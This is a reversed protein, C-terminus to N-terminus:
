VFHFEDMKLLERQEVEDAEGCVGWHEAGRRPTPTQLCGM